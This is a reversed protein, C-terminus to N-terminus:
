APYLTKIVDNLGIEWQPQDVGLVSQIKKTNLVSYAPRKASTPYEVAPIAHINKIQLSMSASACQTITRAFDYWSVAPAGCYHFIGQPLEVCMKLLTEAIAAAPTPCSIQDAVIRLEEKEKALRLITKVFNNGHVGFVASVRLISSKECNKQIEQEAQAKSIGYYNIPAVLDTEVYPMQAQGDFVYDTSLQMLPCQQQECVIALNKAGIVNSAYVQEHNNEALDVQTYAAANIVVDPKFQQMVHSVATLDAIELQQRTLALLNFSRAAIRQLDYAIQGNAGTLLIKM